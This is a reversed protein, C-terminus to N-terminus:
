DLGPIQSGLLSQELLDSSAHLPFPSKLFLQSKEKRRRRLISILSLM